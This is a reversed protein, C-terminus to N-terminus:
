ARLFRDCVKKKEKILADIWPVTSGVIEGDNNVNAVTRGDGGIFSHHQQDGSRKGGRLSMCRLNFVHATASFQDTHAHPYSYFITKYREITPASSSAVPSVYQGHKQYTQINPIIASLGLWCWAHFVKKLM